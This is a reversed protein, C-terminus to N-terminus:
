RFLILYYANFNIGFLIMFITVVWQIYPSYGAISSNKIGFGGTGATGFATTLADFLPINGFLLFIVQLFTLAFYILYLIRATHKMKPVLKGVSPGPSEAKMLNINSGGSMPIVAMLFVLVGMGGIWHTFSRWFLSTYSLAEVDTLISAGTTTFGSITEFLADTFVPIEGTLVFPLCGVISLAIWSLATIICGEKLYFVHNKPKRATMGLGLIGALIAVLLFHVGESEKYIFAVICPLLLLAGEIKLVNGLIYRIIARNM